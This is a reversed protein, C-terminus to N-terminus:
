NNEQTLTIYEYALYTGAHVCRKCIIAFKVVGKKFKNDIESVWVGNLLDAATLELFVLFCILM